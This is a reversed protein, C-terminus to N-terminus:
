ADGEIEFDDEGPMPWEIDIRTMRAVVMCPKGWEAIVKEDDDTFDPVVVTAFRENGEHNTYVVTDGTHLFSLGPLVGPFRETAKASMPRLIVFVSM